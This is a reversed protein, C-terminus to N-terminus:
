SDISGKTTDIETKPRERYAPSVSPDFEFFICEAHKGDSVDRLSFVLIYKDKIRTCDAIHLTGYFSGNNTKSSYGDQLKFNYVVGNYALEYYGMQLNNPIFSGKGGPMYSGVTIRGTEKLTIDYNTNTKEKEAFLPYASIDQVIKYKKLEPLNFSLYGLGSKVILDYDDNGFRYTSNKHQGLFDKVWGALYKEIEDEFIKCAVSYISDSSDSSGYSERKPREMGTLVFQYGRNKLVEHFIKNDPYKSENVFNLYTKELDFKIISDIVIDNKFDYIYFDVPKKYGGEISFIHYDDFTRAFQIDAGDKVVNLKDRWKFKVPKGTKDVMQYKGSESYRREYYTNGNIVYRYFRYFSERDYEIDKEPRPFVVRLVPKKMAALEELHYYEPHRDEETRVCATCSTYLIVFFLSVAFAKFIPEM